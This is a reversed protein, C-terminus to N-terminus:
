EPQAALPASSLPHQIFGSVPQLQGLLVILGLGGALGFNKLFDWFHARAKSDGKAWFDRAQWFPHFLIATVICYGALIFAALRDHWACLILASGGIEIIGGAILLYKVGPLFSSNAQKLANKYNFIKDLTSFPFLIVLFFRVLWPLGVLNLWIM